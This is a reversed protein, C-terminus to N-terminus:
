IFSFSGNNGGLELISKAFRSMVKQGVVRGVRESGQSHNSIINSIIERVQSKGHFISYLTEFPRLTRLFLAQKGLDVKSSGVLAEGVPQGGTVLGALAGPLDNKKLIEAIISTM